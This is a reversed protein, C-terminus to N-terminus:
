TILLPPFFHPQKTCLLSFYHVCFFMMFNLLPLWMTRSRPHCWAGTCGPLQGVPFCVQRPSSECDLLLQSTVPLAPVQQVCQLLKVQREHKFTSMGSQVLTVKWSPFTWSFNESLMSDEEVSSTRTSSITTSCCYKM